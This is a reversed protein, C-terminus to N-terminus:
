PESLFRPITLTFVTGLNEESTFSISGELLAIFKKVIVLGLGTGQVNKVNSGRYFETFLKKQDKLPIGIGYDQITITIISESVQTEIKIEKGRESYKCANSLLNLLINKLIKSSQNVYLEGSHFHSITQNNIKVLVDVENIIESVFDSLNFENVEFDVVGKRLKELILFDNLIANLHIVLGSIRDLHKIVLKGKNNEIYKKVLSTSSLIIALPTKFEHSAIGLFNSKMEFLEKERAISESLKLTRQAVKKELEEQFVVQSTVDLIVMHSITKDENLKVFISSWFLSGDKRKMHQINRLEGHEMLIIINDENVNPHVYHNVPIFNQILDEKSDYGFLEVGVNNVDIVRSTAIDITFIGVLANSFINRYQEESKKLDISIQKRETIDSRIALYKYPKGNENIFPVITTDVWYFSGDKARNKIEGKWIAGSGITKWLNKFFDVSHYGSNIIRHNQGILEERSYKSIKSFNDNAFKIIGKEDTIAVISAADLAKKYDFLDKVLHNSEISQKIIKKELKQNLQNIEQSRQFLELKLSNIKKSLTLLKKYDSKYIKELEVYETVEKISQFIYQVENDKNLIPKNILNWYKEELIGEANRVDLRLIAMDNIKKNQLVYDFSAKTQAVIDTNVDVSSNPFVDFFYKGVQIEKKAINAVVYEDSMALITLDPSLALFLGPAGEFLAKFDIEQQSNM